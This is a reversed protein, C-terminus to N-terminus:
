VWLTYIVISLSPPCTEENELHPFYLYKSASFDLYPNRNQVKNRKSSPGMKLPTKYRYQHFLLVRTNNGHCIVHVFIHVADIHVIKM